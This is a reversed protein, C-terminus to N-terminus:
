IRLGFVPRMRTGVGNGAFAAAFWLWGHVSSSAIGSFYAGINCGYAIRAGYGLLLGGLVAAVMSKLPVRQLPAFRGAMGAAALAGLMIGIDMVSTVDTLVNARLAAANPASQWYPWSAVNVGLVALVKSGWLAFASTIGWPRGSLTLTAVNVAALGLAGAVLPWPGRLWAGETSPPPPIPRIDSPAHRREIVLSVVAVAGFLFLSVTLSAVLGLRSLLSIPGFSPTGQWFPTHKAGVVSGAIFAFLTALMRVSGGGATYLTGSACGGGLQMGIGFLFAGVLVSLGVPAVSGRVSVGFIQGHALIPLFIACTVALMLMQARLGEGRRKAIMERWSSTFGFAAHYLVIGAGTGVFFLAAQRPAIAVALYAAGSVILVLAVSVPGVDLTPRLLTRNLTATSM